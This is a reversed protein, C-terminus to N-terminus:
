RLAAIITEMVTAAPMPAVLDVREPLSASKLREPDDTVGMLGTRFGHDSWALAQVDPDLLAEELRRCTPTLSILPHSAFITPEPYIVRIRASITEVYAANAILFEVLQNEYGVIVPRAGMGQKLFGEFIDGSSSEMYGLGAFYAEIRPLLAPLDDATPTEGGNFATALLASWINGSNSRAPDTSLVRVPGYVNVGLDERWRAGSALMEGLRGLDAALFGDARPRVVGTRQLADAVEAWAFLVIPSSFVTEAGLVPRGSARALEVAVATSPWLCDKGDSPLTTVMEVSGARRADLDIRFRRDLLDRVAPNELFASKEGGYFIAVRVRERPTADRRLASWDLTTAALAALAVAALIGLGLLSRSM